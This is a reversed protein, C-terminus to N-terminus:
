GARGWLLAPDDNARLVRLAMVDGKYRRRPSREVRERFGCPGLRETDCRPHTATALM